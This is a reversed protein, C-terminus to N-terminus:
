STQATGGQSVGPQRDTCHAREVQITAHAIGFRERLTGEIGHLVEDHDAEPSVTAHLTVLPRDPVLSWAHVHHIDVVGPVAAPL